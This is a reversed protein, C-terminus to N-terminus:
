RRIDGVFKFGVDKGSRLSACWSSYVSLSFPIGSMIAMSTILVYSVM